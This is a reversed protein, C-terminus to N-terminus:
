SVVKKNIIMFKPQNMGRIKNSFRDTQIKNMPFFQFYDCNIIATDYLM